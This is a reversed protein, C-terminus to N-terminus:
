AVSGEVDGGGKGELYAHDEISSLQGQHFISTIIGQARHASFEHVRVEDPLRSPWSFDKQGDLSHKCQGLDTQFKM